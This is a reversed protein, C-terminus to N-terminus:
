TPVRRAKEWDRRTVRVLSAEDSDYPHSEELPRCAISCGASRSTSSSRTHSGASRPSSDARAEAGLPPMTVRQDWGLVGAARGLDRVEALRARLTTSAAAHAHWGSRHGVRAATPNRAIGSTRIMPSVFRM